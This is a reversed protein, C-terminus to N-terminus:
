PRDKNIWPYVGGKIKQQKKYDLVLKQAWQNLPRPNNQPNNKM